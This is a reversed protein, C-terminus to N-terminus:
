FTNIYVKRSLISAMALGQEEVGGGVDCGELHAVVIGDFCVDFFM